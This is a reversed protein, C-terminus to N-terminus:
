MSAEQYTVVLWYEFFMNVKELMIVNVVLELVVV